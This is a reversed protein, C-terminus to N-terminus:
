SMNFFDRQCADGVLVPGTLNIRSRRVAGFESLGDATTSFVTDGLMAMSALGGAAEATEVADLARRSILGTDVAFKRSLRMFEEFTPKKLLAKLCREGALSILKKEQEDSLVGKTSIPGFHVYYIYDPATPIRDLAFPTGPQLRIEVGGNSMGSVDGLGTGSAVEALHAAYCLENFTRELGLLQNLALATSMAGAASAGLGGGIPVSLRSNVLVPQDTLLDILTRTTTAESEVGNLLVRTEGDPLLTVETYVGDDLSLGAGCSGTKLPDEHERAVFFGTVHGPAFARAKM